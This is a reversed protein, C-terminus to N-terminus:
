KGGVSKLGGTEPYVDFHRINAPMFTLVGYQSILFKGSINVTNSNYLKVEAYDPIRYYFGHQKTKLTDKGTQYAQLAKTNESKNISLYVPEGYPDGTELVGHLTSFRFLPVSDSPKDAKPIYNFSYTIKKTFIIGTFLKRYENELKELEENMLKFTEKDYNVEQFGSILNFRNDKVKIIFDAADKAKQEPTKEVMSRKYTVKEVTISDLNVKEIITDVKEFLNLDTYYKFIDPFVNGAENFVCVPKEPSVTDKHKKTGLIIGSEDLAMRFQEMESSCKQKMEVFFYQQPDPESISSLKLESIEYVTSNNKIVNTIGLYKEAFEAYPGRIQETKNVVVDIQIINRPLAYYFGEGEAPDGSEGIRSIHVISKSCSFIM